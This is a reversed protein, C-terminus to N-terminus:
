QAGANEKICTQETQLGAPALQRPGCRVPRADNTEIKHQVTTTRGTVPEGSAPFVHGYQHLINRLTMRGVGGLSPHSGVVIDELHEPLTRGVGPSVFELRAVSVASVPVLDGVCSFSPLVVVDSGPHVWLVSASWESADVLTRGVLVGYSETLAIYPEILSCRGPQVRISLPAVVESDPPLVLLNKLHASMPSRASSAFM